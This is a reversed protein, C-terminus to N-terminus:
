YSSQGAQTVLVNTRIRSTAWMGSVHRYSSSFQPGLPSDTLTTHPELVPLEPITLSVLFFGFLNRDSRNRHRVRSVEKAFVWVLTSNAACVDFLAPLAAGGRQGRPM